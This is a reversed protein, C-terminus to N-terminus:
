NTMRTAANGAHMESRCRRHQPALGQYQLEHWPFSRADHQGNSLLGSITDLAHLQSRRGSPALRALYVLAPPTIAGSHQILATPESM